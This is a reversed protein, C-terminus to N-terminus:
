AGEWSRPYVSVARGNGAPLSAPNSLKTFTDGSRKYITLYPSNAHSFSVYTGDKNWAIGVGNYGNPITTAPDSLKTFSDGSRKYFAVFPSVQKAVALYTDTPDFVAVRSSGPATDFPSSLKTFTDGSRKFIYVGDETGVTVYDSNSCSWSTYVSRLSTSAKTAVIQTLTSGSRKYVFFNNGVSGYILSCVAVYTETNDMAIGRTQGGPLSAPNSLKTYSSGSRSWVMFYPSATMAAYLYDGSASYGVSWATSNAGTDFSASQVSFTDGDREYIKIYPTTSSGAALLSGDASFNVGWGQGPLATPDTLKTFTDGDQSYVNIYPSTDGVVALYYEQPAGGAAVYRALSNLRFAGLPM